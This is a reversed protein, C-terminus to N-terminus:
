LLAAGALSETATDAAELGAAAWATPGFADWVVVGDPCCQAIVHTRYGPRSLRAPKVTM